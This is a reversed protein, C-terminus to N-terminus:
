VEFSRGFKFGLIRGDWDEICFGGVWFGFELGLGGFWVWVGDWFGLGLVWVLDELGIRWGVWDMLGFGDVGFELLELNWCSWVGVWIM